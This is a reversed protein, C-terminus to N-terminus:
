SFSGIMTRTNYITYQDVLPSHQVGLYYIKELKFKKNKVSMTWSSKLCVTYTHWTIRTMGYWPALFWCKLLSEMVNSCVSILVTWIESWVLDYWYYICKYHMVIYIERTQSYYRYDKIIVSGLHYAYVDHKTREENWWFVGKVFAVYRKFIKCV